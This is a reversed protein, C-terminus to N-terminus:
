PVVQIKVPESFVVRGSGGATGGRLKKGYVPDEIVGHPSAKETGYWYAAALPLTGARSPARLTWVVQARGWSGAAADSAIGLVNVYSLNRGLAEPRREIWKTQEKFDQGIITPPATVDFGTGAIPRALWRHAVDVLAVGVVPGAGGTLDVTVTFVEGAKVKPPATVSVSSAADVAQIHAVLEARQAESLKGYEGGGGQIVALHKASALQKAAMGPPAGSLADESMSSHCGACFPAADTQFGPTGGPYASMASPM